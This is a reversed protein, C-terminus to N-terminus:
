GGPVWGGVAVCGGEVGRASRSYTRDRGRAFEGGDCVLCAVADASYWLLGPVGSLYGGGRVGARGSLGRGSTPLADVVALAVLRPREIGM